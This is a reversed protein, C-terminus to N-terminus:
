KGGEAAAMSLVRGSEGGVGVKNGPLGDSFKM